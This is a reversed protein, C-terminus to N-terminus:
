PIKTEGYYKYFIADVSTGFNNINIKFASVSVLVREFERPKQENTCYM